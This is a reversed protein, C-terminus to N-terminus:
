ARALDRDQTAVDKGPRLVLQTNAETELVVDFTLLQEHRFVHLQVKEGVNYRELLKDLNDRTIRQDNLAVLVDHGSLGARQAPGGTYVHAIVSNENQVRTKIGLVPKNKQRTEIWAIGAHNLLKKLPLEHTSETLDRVIRELKLGTAQEALPIFGTEALGYPKGQYFDRGYNQWLARMVDDLSKEHQSHQRIWLDLCLAVLAGKQYYSVIANPSNEDPRYYKTWADLSSDSVSQQLRGPQRLLDQITQAVQELYQELTLLGARLLLLDDYYSTFGEFIWLLRTVNMRDLAYPAFAEPKIRKVHWTHFYEHSALGLFTRYAQSREKTAQGYNLSPLSDHSCILATSARHELGGYGQATVHVLFVYRSMPARQTKPEFFAIQTETIRQLDETLRVTDIAYTAGSVVVDHHVGCATFSLSTFNGIECPHDILEDYDAAVYRGFGQANVAKAPLSTAVRWNLYRTDKAALLEVEHAWHEAGIVRLFLSSGNFFGRQTDLYATRVSLDYAYVQWTLIVESNIPPLAWTHPDTKTVTIKKRSTDGKTNAHLSIIHRSFDRILYSGPIWTPLALRAGQQALARPLRLSVDFLHAEPSALRVTYVLRM